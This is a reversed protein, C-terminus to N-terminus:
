HRQAEVCQSDDGSWRSSQSQIASGSIRSYGWGPNERAMRVILESIERMIRHWRLLTDPSVIPDLEM